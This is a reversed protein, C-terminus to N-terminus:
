VTELQWSIALLRVSQQSGYQGFSIHFIHLCTKAPFSSGEPRDNRRVQVSALVFQVAGLGWFLICFRLIKSAPETPLLAAILSSIIIAFMPMVSGIGASSLIGLVIYPWDNKSMGLLRMFGVKTNREEETQLVYSTASLFHARLSFLLGRAIKIM